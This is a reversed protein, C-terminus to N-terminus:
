DSAFASDVTNNGSVGSLCWTLDTCLKLAQIM